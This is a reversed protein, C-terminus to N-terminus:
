EILLYVDFLNIVPDGPGTAVKYAGRQLDKGVRIISAYRGQADTQFEAAMAPAMKFSLDAYQSDTIRYLVVKTRTRPAENAGFLYLTDGAQATVTHPYDLPDPKRDRSITASATKM